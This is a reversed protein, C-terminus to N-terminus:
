KASSTNRGFFEEYFGALWSQQQLQHLFKKDEFMEYNASLLPYEFAKLTFPPYDPFHNIIRNYAAHKAAEHKSLKKM